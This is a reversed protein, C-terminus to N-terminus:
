GTAGARVAGAMVQATDDWTPLRAARARSQACLRAHLDADSLVARLHAAFAPADGPPALLGSGDLAEPVAGTDCSVVPLGHQQAESLVMGYGEYRTALAFLNAQAYLGALTGAGLEGSLTVRDALGLADRLRYLEAVHDAEHHRGVVVARWDLDAVAGLARLLVDHGKRHCVLGVSLVLPPGDPAVAPLACAPEFGPHAIQIRTATVGFRDRLLGAVHASPVVIQVAHTLNAQETAHLRDALEPALGPELALPHHVMAIVPRAIGAAARLAGFALGDIVVPCGEPLDALRAMADREQADTQNPWDGPLALLTVDHGAAQLADIVKRDYLTGGTRADPDGPIAFALQM